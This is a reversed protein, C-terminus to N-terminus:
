WCSDPGDFFCWMSSPHVFRHGTARAGLALGKRMLGGDEDTLQGTRGEKLPQLPSFSGLVFVSQPVYLSLEPPQQKVWSM